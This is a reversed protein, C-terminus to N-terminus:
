AAYVEGYRGNPKGEDGGAKVPLGSPIQENRAKGTQGM